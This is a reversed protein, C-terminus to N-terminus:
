MLTAQPCPAAGPDEIFLREDAAAQYGYYLTVTSLRGAVPPEKKVRAPSARGQEFGPVM